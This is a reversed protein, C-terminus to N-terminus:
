AAAWYLELRIGGPEYFMMHKNPGDHLFEPMFEIKCGPHNEIKTALDNLADESSIAIALHHLGINQRRDFETVPKSHDVQWLTLFLNGDTVASRPYADDRWTEEWKLVTTFFEITEDLNKVSLGIHAVGKTQIM